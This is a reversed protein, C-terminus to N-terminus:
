LTGDGDTEPDHNTITLGERSAFVILDNTAADGTLMPAELIPLPDGTTQALAFVPVLRSTLGERTQKEAEATETMIFYRM